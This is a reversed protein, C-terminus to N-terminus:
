RGGWHSSGGANSALRKFHAKAEPSNDRPSFIGRARLQAFEDPAEMTAKWRAWTLAQRLSRPWSLRDRSAIKRAVSFVAAKSIQGGWSNRAAM